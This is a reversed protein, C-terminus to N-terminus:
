PSSSFRPPSFGVCNATEARSFDHGSVFSLFSYAESIEQTRDRDFENLSAIEGNGERAQPDTWMLPGVAESSYNSNRKSRLFYAGEFGYLRRRFLIM